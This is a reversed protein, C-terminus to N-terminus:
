PGRRADAIAQGLRRAEINDPDIELARDVAHKADQWKTESALTAALNIWAAVYSPSAQLAAHFYIEAQAFDGERVTLYGMQNQAEALNPNLQIARQLAAKEGAVDKLKDLAKALKYLLVPQDPDSVLADRYLSVAQAADGAAIAQDGGEVKAAAQIMGEQVDKLQKYIHFREKAGDSDGLGQLVKALTYQVEPSDDGLAIAREMHAKAGPLDGFQSLISGLARQSDAYNPNLAISRELYTQAEQTNGESSDLVANLYLVEWQDPYEKLIKHAFEPAKHSHRSVLMRLYLLQTPQDNPHKQLVLDLVAYAEEDRKLLMLVVVLEDAIQPSDPTTNLGERLVRAADVFRAAAAFAMGLNFSQQPSRGRDGTPKDVLAIVGTYDKQDILDQSLNDLAPTSGPDIALASRWEAEADTTRHLRDLAAGLALHPRIDSPDLRVAQQLPALAEADHGASSLSLGWLYAFSVSDPQLRAASAFSKAACAFEEQRAFWNGLDAYAQASPKTQSAATLSPPAVCSAFTLTSALLCLVIGGLVPALLTSAAVRVTVQTSNM